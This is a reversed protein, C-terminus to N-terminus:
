PPRQDAWGCTPIRRAPIEPALPGFGRRFRIDHGVQTLQPSVKEFFFNLKNEVGELRHSVEM